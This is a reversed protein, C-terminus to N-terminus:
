TAFVPTTRSIMTIWLVIKRGGRGKRRGGGKCDGEKRKGIEV